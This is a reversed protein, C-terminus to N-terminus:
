LILYEKHIIKENILEMVLSVGELQRLGTLLAQLFAEKQMSGKLLWLFDIHRLESLLHKGDDQNVYLIHQLELHSETFQYIPFEYQRKMSKLHRESEQLYQFNLGLGRNVLWVFRHAELRCQIGILLADEFFENAIQSNDVVLKPM